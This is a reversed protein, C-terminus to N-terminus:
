YFNGSVVFCLLDLLGVPIKFLQYLMKAIIVFSTFFSIIGCSVKLARKGFYCAWIVLVNLVLNFTSIQLM